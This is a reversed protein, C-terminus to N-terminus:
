INLALEEKNTITIEVEEELADLIKQARQLSIGHYDNREDRCVQAPSVGLREALEVQTINNAIRLAILYKGVDAMNKITGFERRQVREYWEVEEKLQEHFSLMPDLVNKLQESSLGMEELQKKQQTIVEKDQKLRSLAEQYENENRIM